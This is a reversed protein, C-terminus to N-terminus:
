GVYPPGITNVVSCFTFPGGEDICDVVDLEVVVLEVDFALEVDDAGADLAVAVVPITPACPWIKLRYQGLQLM